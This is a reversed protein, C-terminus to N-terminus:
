SSGGGQGAAFVLAWTLTQGDDLNYYNFDVVSGKAFFNWSTQPDSIALNSSLIGAWGTSEISPLLPALVNDWEGQVFAKKRVYPSIPTMPLMHIGNVYQTQGGFFTFYGVVNGFTVGSAYNENFSEPFNKNGSGLLLYQNTSRMNVACMMNGLGELNANGTVKGWLKLGYSYNYDESSSEQDKGSAQDSIIGHAVGHGVYWDMMRFQPFYPDGEVPNSVDRILSNVWSQHASTLWSSRLYGMAAAAYIIYGYHFHHDNYDTAGFDFGPQSFGGDVVIGRWTTEYDFPANQMNAAFINMISELQNICTTALPKDQLIDQAVMCLQAVKALCKGAFYNSYQNCGNTYNNPLLDPTIAKRIMLLNSKSWNADSNTTIFGINTPLDPENMILSNSLFGTAIGTIPSQMQLGTAGGNAIIEMHHPLAFVLPPRTTDGASVYNFAYTGSSGSTSGSLKMSTVWTGAAQDLTAEGQIANSVTTMKATQITGSWVTNGDLTDGNQTFSLAPAGSDPIVYLIWVSEDGLTVRLKQTIGSHGPSTATDLSTIHVVPSGIVPILGDYRATVMGMGSVLTTGLTTAPSGLPWMKYNVSAHLSTDSARSVNNSILEASSFAIQAQRLPGAFNNPRGGDGSGALVYQDIDSHQVDISHPQFNIVYPIMFLGQATTGIFAQAYQKNTHIPMTSTIGLPAIDHARQAFIAPPPGSAIAAFINSASSSTKGADTYPVPFSLNPAVKYISIQGNGGCFETANGYCQNYCSSALRQNPNITAGCYCNGGYETGAYANGISSCYTECVENTMSSSSFSANQLARIPASDDFCGVYGVPGNPDITIYNPNIDVVSIAGNGGCIQNKDGSCPYNCANSTVNSTLANGCYCESSYEAGAITYGANLCFLACTM